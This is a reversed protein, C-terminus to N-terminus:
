EHGCRPEVISAPYQLSTSRQVAWAKEKSFLFGLKEECKAFYPAMAASLEAPPLDLATVPADDAQNDQSVRASSPHPLTKGDRGVAATATRSPKSQTRKPKKM